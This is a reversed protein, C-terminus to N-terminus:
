EKKKSNAIHKKIIKFIIAHTILGGVFVGLVFYWRIVGYSTKYIQVFLYFGMGIWYVIDEISIWILNHRVIRRILRIVCYILYVINGTLAAHLFVSLEKEIGFIM